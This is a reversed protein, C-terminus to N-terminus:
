LQLSNSSSIYGNKLFNIFGLFPFQSNFPRDAQGCHDCAIEAASAPEVQNIDRVSYLKTGKVGVYGVQVSTTNSLAQQINFNWNFVYPTRLNRDVGLIDCPSGGQSPDCNAM